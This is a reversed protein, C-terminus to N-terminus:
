ASVTVTGPTPLEVDSADVTFTVDTAPAALTFNLVGDVGGIARILAVRSLTMGGTQPAVARVADAVAAAIDDEVDSIVLDEELVLDTIDVDVDVDTTEPVTVDATVPRVTDLYDAVAARVLNSAAVRHGDADATCVVVDVTGAGRRLPLPYAFAVSEVSLAWQEYDSATGGASGQRIRLLLRELLAQDTEDDAGNTWGTAISATSEVGSPPSSVTLVRGSTASKNGVVGAQNCTAPIDEHLGAITVSATTTYTTGDTHTLVLGAPVVTASTGYVRVEGDSAAVAPKPTVAWTAAHRRLNTSDATAPFIQDEVWRVGHDLSWIGGAIVALRMYLESDPSLNAAEWQNAADAVLGDLIEQYSRPSYSM